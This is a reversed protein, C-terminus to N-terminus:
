STVCSIFWPLPANVHRRERRPLNASLFPGKNGDPNKEDPNKGDPNKGDPNKGDPNKGDPNGDPDVTSPSELGRPETLVPM